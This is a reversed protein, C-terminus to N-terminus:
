SSKLKYVTHCPDEILGYYRAVKDIGSIIQLPFPTTALISYVRYAQKEADDSFGGDTTYFQAIATIVMMEAGLARDNGCNQEFWHLEGNLVSKLEDDSDPLPSLEQWHKTAETYYAVISEDGRMLLSVTELM